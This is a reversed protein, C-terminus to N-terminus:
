FAAAQAAVLAPFIITVLVIAFIALAVIRILPLAAGLLRSRLLSRRTVSSRPRQLNDTLMIAGVFEKDHVWSGSPVRGQATAPMSRPGFRSATM